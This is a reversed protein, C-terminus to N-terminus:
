NDNSLHRMLKLANIHLMQCNLRVSGNVKRKDTVHGQLGSENLNTRMRIIEATKMFPKLEELENCSDQKVQLATAGSQQVYIPM